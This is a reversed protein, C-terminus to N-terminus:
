GIRNEPFLVRVIETMTTRAHAASADDVASDVSTDPLVLYPEDGHDRDWEWNDPDDDYAVIERAAVVLVYREDPGVVATSLHAWRGDICCMWGQKVAIQGNPQDALADPIGFWQDYGDAATHSAAKLHGVITDVATQDLGGRGDLLGTYWDVLDDATTETNWWNGDWPARTSDLGYREAVDEVIANDGLDSWLINAADDDSQELMRRLLDDEDESRPTDRHLLADAIFLKAVSATEIMESDGTGFREGTTRDLLAISVNAGRGAAVEQAASMRAAIDSPLPGSTTPTAPETPTDSIPPPIRLSLPPQRDAWPSSTPVPEDAYDPPPSLTCGTAAVAVVAAVALAARRM